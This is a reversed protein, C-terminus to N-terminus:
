HVLGAVAAMSVWAVLAAIGTWLAVIARSGLRGERRRKLYSRRVALPDSGDVQIM